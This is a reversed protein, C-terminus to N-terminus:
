GFAIECFSDMFIDHFAKQVEYSEEKSLDTFKSVIKDTGKKMVPLMVENLNVESFMYSAQKRQIRWKGGNTNFIGDGLFDHNREISSSSKIWKYPCSFTEKIVGPDVTQLM